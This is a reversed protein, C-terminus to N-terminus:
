RKKRPEWAIWAVAPVLSLLFACDFLPSTRVLTWLGGSAIWPGFLCVAVGASALAALLVAGAAADKAAGALPDWDKTIRDGLREAATNVLELATVLGFCLFLVAWQTPSLGALWGAWSVYCVATLHVRLNRETRVTRLIGRTAHPFSGMLRKLWM